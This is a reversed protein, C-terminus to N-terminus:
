RGADKPAIKTGVLAFIKRLYRITPKSLSLLHNRSTSAFGISNEQEINVFNTIKEHLYQALNGLSAKVCRVGFHVVTFVPSPSSEIYTDVKCSGM